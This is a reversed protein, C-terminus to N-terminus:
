RDRRDMRQHVTDHGLNFRQIGDDFHEFDRDYNIEYWRGRLQTLQQIQKETLANKIRILAGLHTRKVNAELELLKNVQAVAAQENIPQRELMESLSAQEAQLNWQLDVTQNQLTKVADTIVRRQEATLELARQHQMVLEPPFLLKDFSPVVQHQGQARPPAYGPEMTIPPPPAQGARSPPPTQGQAAVPLVAAIAMTLALRKTM